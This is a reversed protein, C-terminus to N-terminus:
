AALAQRLREMGARQGAHPEQEAAMADLEDLLETAAEVIAATRLRVAEGAREFELCYECRNADVQEPTECYIACNNHFQCKNM